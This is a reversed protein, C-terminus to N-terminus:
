EIAEAFADDSSGARARYVELDLSACEIPLSGHTVLLASGGESLHTTLVAGLEAKGETDLAATPEDLLWLPRGSVVLRALACRRRQGASLTGGARDVLPALNFSSLALEVRDTSYLAAWFALTEWVTLTPKLADLHAAYAVQEIDHELAGAVLPMLGALTRLLTTKGLGNGGRLALAVGAAVDFSVGELLPQHSRGITLQNVRLGSM